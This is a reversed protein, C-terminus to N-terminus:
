RFARTGSYEQEQGSYPTGRQKGAMEKVAMFAERNTANPNAQLYAYFAQEEYSMAQLVDPPPLVSREHGQVGERPARTGLAGVDENTRPMGEGYNPPTVGKPHYSSPGDVGLDDYNDGFNQYPDSDNYPVGGAGGEDWQGTQIFRDIKRGFEEYLALDRQMRALESELQEPEIPYAKDNIFIEITENRALNFWGEGSMERQIAAIAENTEAIGKSIAVKNGFAQDRTMPPKIPGGKETLGRKGMLYAGLLDPHEKFFDHQIQEWPSMTGRSEMAIRRLEEQHRNREMREVNEAVRRSARDYARSHIAAMDAREQRELVEQRYDATADFEAERQQMAAHQRGRAARIAPGQETGAEIVNSLINRWRPKTRDIKAGASEAGAYVDHRYTKGGHEVDVVGARRQAKAAQDGARAKQRLERRRGRVKAIVEVPMEELDLESITELDTKNSGEMGQGYYGKERGLEEQYLREFEAEPDFSYAGETYGNM